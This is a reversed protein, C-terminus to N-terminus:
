GQAPAPPIPPLVGDTATENLGYSGPDAGGLLLVLGLRGVSTDLSDVTSLGARGFAPLASLVTGPAETGVAPLGSRAFGGYVGGLFTKTMGVQAPASRALAVADVPPSAPGDREQVIIQGLADWLPTDGGDLLETALANGLEALRDPGQFEAFAPQRLAKQVAAVDLPVSISRTRVVSGGADRIARGIALSVTQSVPGVFLVAVGVGKLRRDAIAPYTTDALDKLARARRDASEFSEKAGDRQQRLDAIQGTLNAREADNVFGKGSLGVGVLIGIVLAVFVATLSAVHYRLDFVFLTYPALTSWRGAAVARPM